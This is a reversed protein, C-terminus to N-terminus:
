DAHQEAPRLGATWKEEIRGLKWVALPSSRLQTLGDNSTTRSM